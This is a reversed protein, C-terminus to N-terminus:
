AMMNVYGSREGNTIRGFMDIMADSELDADPLSVEYISAALQPSLINSDYEQWQNNKEESAFSLDLNADAFGADKFAQELSALEKRFANLAEESEVLIFGTVKNEAMELHIKVNGLSDPRLALRIVSEGGDRLAASASKVIDGNFSQHLERALLNEFSAANGQVAKADWMTQAGQGAGNFDPLRLELTIEKASAESLRSMSTEVSNFSRTQSVDASTRQDRIEFAVRDRRSRNRMEELRGPREERNQNQLAAKEEGSRKVSAFIQANETDAQGPKGTQKESMIRNKLDLKEAALAEEANKVSSTENGTKTFSEIPAEERSPKVTEKVLSPIETKVALDDASLDQRMGTKEELAANQDSIAMQTLAAFVDDPNYDFEIDEKVQSEDPIKIDSFNINFDSEPIETLVNIQEVSLEESTESLEANKATGNLLGALIEAFGATNEDENNEQVHPADNISTNANVPNSTVPETYAPFETAQATITLV